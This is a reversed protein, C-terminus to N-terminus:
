LITVVASIHKRRHELPSKLARMMDVAFIDRPVDFSTIMVVISLGTWTQVAKFCTKLYTSAILMALFDKLKSGSDLKRQTM